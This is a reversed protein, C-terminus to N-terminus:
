FRLRVGGYVTRPTGAYASGAVGAVTAAGNQRGTTASVSNTINNASALYTRDAVNRVEVYASVDRFPGAALPAVYHLNVNVLGFGPAKLLNANDVYFDDQNVYEVYAGLGKFAGAQQDYGLRLLLENLPM